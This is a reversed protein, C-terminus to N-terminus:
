VYKKLLRRKFVTTRLFISNFRFSKREESVLLLYGLSSVWPAVLRTGGGKEEISFVLGGNRFDLDIVSCGGIDITLDTKNDGGVQSPQPPPSPSYM